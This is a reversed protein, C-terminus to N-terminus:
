SISVFIWELIRLMNRDLKPPIDAVVAIASRGSEIYIMLLEIVQDAKIQILISSVPWAQELSTLIRLIIFYILAKSHYLASNSYVSFTGGEVFCLVSLFYKAIIMSSLYRFSARLVV